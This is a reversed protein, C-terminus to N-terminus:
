FPYYSSRMYDTVIQKLVKKGPKASKYEYRGGNDQSWTRIGNFVESSEKQLNKFEGSLYDILEQTNFVCKCEEQLLDRFKM